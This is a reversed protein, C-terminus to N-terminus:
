IKLLPAEEELADECFPWVKINQKTQKPFYKKNCM